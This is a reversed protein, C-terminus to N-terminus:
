NPGGSLEERMHVQGLERMRSQTLSDFLSASRGERSKRLVDARIDDPLLKVVLARENILDDRNDVETQFRTDIQGLLKTADKVAQSRNQMYDLNAGIKDMVGPQFGLAQMFAQSTPLNPDQSLVTGSNSRLQGYKFAMYGKFANGLGSANSALKILNDRTMASNDIDGNDAAAYKVADTLTKGFQITTSGTAGVAADLPSITGYQNKGLINEFISPLFNGTGAREGVQADAGTMHYIVEDLLGRDAFGYFSDIDTAGTKSPDNPNTGLGPTNAVWSNPDMSKNKIFTSALQGLPLGASGYMLTQGLILRLKQASTLQRGVMMELMRANYAYFQTPISMIGTQWAARSTASMNFAYKEANGALANRFEQSGIDLGLQQTEKFAITWAVARNWVEGENFLFRGGERLKDVGAGIQSMAANPGGSNVLVHSNGVDFFGSQKAYTMMSKYEAGTMDMTKHAGRQILTDLMAENGAGTLYTRLPMLNVMGRFGNAPDITTAALLTQIQLPFQAVNFLGLKLDFAAGRLARIPNHDNWWDAAKVGLKARASNPDDGIVYQEFDRQAQEFQRDVDSKWNLVRGTVARQNEGANRIARLEANGDLFKGNQILTWPSAGQPVSKPDIYPGYTEAWRKIAQDKYDSFSTMSAINTLSQNITKFSDLVPAQAGQWDKLTEGKRSEYLRGNTRLYGNTGTQDPDVFKLDAASTHYVSPLERNGMVEFPHDASYLGADMNDIFTQGDPFGNHGGFIAELKGIDPKTNSAKYLQRAQEMRDVWYKVEARTRGVIYTNPNRLFAKGTDPQVGSVAQKAFYEGEYIRHGGPRYNLQNQELAELDLKNKKVMFNKITTGDRLQIEKELSVLVHGQDALQKIKDPDIGETYHVGNTTDYVREQPPTEPNFKVKANQRQISTGDGVDFSVTEYGATQLPKYIEDNRLAYDADNAMRYAHYAELEKPGAARGAARQYVQQFQGDSLWVGEQEGYHTVQDFLARETHNLKSFVPAYENKLVTYVQAQTNSSVQAADLLGTDGLERAGKLVRSITGTTAPNLGATYMGSEDVPISVRLFKKGSEDNVLMSPDYKYGMSQAGRAAMSETLYGDGNAKGVTAQVDHVISGNTLERPQVTVDVLERGVRDQLTSTAKDVAAQLETPNLRGPQQTNSIAEVAARGRTYAANAEAQPSVASIPGLDNVATPLASRLMDAEPIGVTAAAATSGSDLVASMASAVAEGAVKRGSNRIILAPISVANKFEAPGVAGFNDLLQFADHSFGVTQGGQYQTLTRAVSSRDVNMFGAVKANNQINNVLQPVMKAFDAVNLGWLSQKESNIRNSSVLSDYWNKTVGPLNVNNIEGVENGMGLISSAGITHSLLSGFWSQHQEAVQADDIAKQMLMYKTNADQIVQAADGNQLNNLLLTASTSDGMAAYTQINKIANQELAYASREQTTQAIADRAALQAGQVDEPAATQDQMIRALGTLESTQQDSAAQLRLNSDGTTKIDNYYQQLVPSYSQRLQSPPTLATAALAATRATSADSLNNDPQATPGSMNDFPTSTDTALGDFLSM